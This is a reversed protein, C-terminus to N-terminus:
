VFCIEAIVFIFKGKREPGYDGNFIGPWRCERRWGHFYRILLIPQFKYPTVAYCLDYSPNYSKADQSIGIGTLLGSHYSMIAYYDWLVRDQHICFTFWDLDWKYLLWGTMGELELMYLGRNLSKLLTFYAKNLLSSNNESIERELASKVSFKDPHLLRQLFCYM